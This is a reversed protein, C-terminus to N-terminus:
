HEGVSRGHESHHVGPKVFDKEAQLVALQLLIRETVQRSTERPKQTNLIDHVGAITRRVTSDRGSCLPANHHLHSRLAPALSIAIVSDTELRSFSWVLAMVVSAPL